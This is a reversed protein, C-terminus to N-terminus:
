IQKEKIRFYTATWFVLPVGYVLLCGLLVSLPPSLRISKVRLTDEDKVWETLFHRQWGTPLSVEFVRQELTSFFLICLLVAVGTKVFSFREFYISGLVFASQISFYFFLYAHHDRDLSDGPMGKLVNFVANPEIPYGGSWVRHQREILRNALGVMPIDVLYFIANDLIFFAVVAFLIGCLLKELASAPTQLWAIGKSKSGLDSFTTSGYLSGVLLLGTFYTVAQMGEDLPNFRNMIMLFSDWIALLGLM